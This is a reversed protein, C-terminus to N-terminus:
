KAVTVKCIRGNAAAAIERADARTACRYAHEGTESDVVIWGVIQGVHPKHHTEPTRNFAPSNMISANM